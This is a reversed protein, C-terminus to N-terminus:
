LGARVQYPHKVEDMELKHKSQNKDVHLLALM